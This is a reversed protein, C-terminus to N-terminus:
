ALPLKELIVRRALTLYATRSLLSPIVSFILIVKRSENKNKTIPPSTNDCPRLQSPNWM